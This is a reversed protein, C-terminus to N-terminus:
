ADTIESEFYDYTLTVEVSKISAELYTLESEKFSTPWSGFLQYRVTGSPQSAPETVPSAQSDPRDSLYKRLVADGKYANPAQIGLDNTYIINYWEKYVTALNETDYWSIRVDEYAPKGAFKYKITGGETEIKQFTVHPLTATRLLLTNNLFRAFTPLKNSIDVIEWSFSAYYRQEPSFGGNNGGLQNIIFGPM